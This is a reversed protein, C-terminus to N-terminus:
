KGAVLARRVAALPAQDSLQVGRAARVVGLDSLLGELDFASGRPAHAEAIPGLTPAGLAEDITAITDALSWVDSAHGGAAQVARLGVELGVELKRRRATVDALLCALAGGWYIGRFDDARELGGSTFAPLGLPLSEALERWLEQETSLGARVRVIPEYYTALGEDLWIGEGRFSPFGLHLLEHILIWDSYLAQRTAQEGVVVVIGPASEPLLKGFVVKDRAARPLVTLSARPVPFAGYFRRVAEASTSVWAAVQEFPEALPGDLQSLHLEAGGIDLAQQELRGFAFYTAVGIEHAMLRYQNPRAGRTLGVAARLPAAAEVTVTVPLDARLPEPIPLVSALPALFSEGVQVAEDFSDSLRALEALSVSYSLAAAQGAFGRADFQAGSVVGDRPSRALRFRMAGRASCSADVHVLGSSELRLQYDCHDISSRPTAAPPASQCAALGALVLAWARV